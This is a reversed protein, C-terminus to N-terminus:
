QTHIVLNGINMVSETYISFLPHIPVIEALIDIWETRIPQCLRQRTHSNETGPQLSVWATLPILSYIQRSLRRLNSDKERWWYGCALQPHHNRPHLEITSSFGELSLVLTRNGEGAGRLSETPTHTALLHGHLETTSCERPLPSAPLEIRGM